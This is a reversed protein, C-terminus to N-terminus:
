PFWAGSALSVHLMCSGHWWSKALEQCVDYSFGIWLGGVLHQICNVLALLAFLFPCGAVVFERAQFLAVGVCWCQFGGVRGEYRRGRRWRAGWGWRGERGMRGRRWGRSSGHVGSRCRCCRRHRCCRRQRSVRSACEKSINATQFRVGTRRSCPNPNPHLLPLPTLVLHMNVSPVAEWWIANVSVLGHTVATVTNQTKSARDIPLRCSTSLFTPRTM